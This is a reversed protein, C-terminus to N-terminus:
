SMADVETISSQGRSLLVAHILWMTAEDGADVTDDATLPTKAAKKLRDLLDKAFTGTAVLNGELDTLALASLVSSGLNSPRRSVIQAIAQKVTEGINSRSIHTTFAPYEPYRTEFHKELSSAAVTDLQEKISARPGQTASLLKGLPVEKGAHGVTVATGMNQRLWAVMESLAARRKDDYVAKHTVTSENSLAAAGAYRRLAQTFEESPNTLRVFVEDPKKEDTFPPPDYPQLFYVYFDRPPQATSRENPAGMFLYGVRTVNKAAWPLEYQWIRYGSVYPTDRQELVEELSAFYAEDLKDADLSDAREQIKQEYDIDKRVDLYVQHNESNESIFQGSVTKIIEDLISDISARLFVADLEPVGAPLLCLDDRMEEVTLGIPLNIDETTLRHVTLSDIIRLTTPVYVKTPMAKEVRSRLVDSRDLVEQVAPITRNAPDGALEARYSDFCILGPESDPVETDLLAKMEASLTNLIKRKEVLTIREFTRLYSPHVPFLNVYEDLREAMGEFAPTFKQLRDRIVDRQGTSKRLLREQVVFAIDERSIRFQEFRDRVRIIADAADSFRPNDFLSEQIGAIFRLRTTPCIEGVERLFALDAVLETDKRARLYDLLEDLVFLLGKEPEVQEFAQMMEVLSAKTGSVQDASPFSFEVGMDKLGQELEDCVIDRLSMKTHGIESRIVRFRGAISDVAEAAEPNTLDAALDAHEAIASIVSMLHTKGTGYTAVVFAAHQRRVGPTDFRLAPVLVERLGSLMRESIVYTRVDERARDLDDADSLVKISVIEEFQVLENYKM